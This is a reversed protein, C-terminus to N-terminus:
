RARWAGLIERERAEMAEAEDDQLHDWGCLHLIGHVLLLEVEEVASTGFDDAQAAAVDAAIVIDGLEYLQGEAFASTVEDVINDCEFSLVDTPGDKGRYEANLRAMEDNDVFTVSVECDDPKGEAKMAFSCLAEVEVQEVLDSGHEVAVLVEM